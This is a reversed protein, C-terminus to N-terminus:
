ARQVTPLEELRVGPVEPQSGRERSEPGPLVRRVDPRVAPQQRGRLAPRVQRAALRAVPRRHGRLVLRVRPAAPQEAPRRHALFARRVVAPHLVPNRLQLGVRVPLRHGPIGVLRGLHDPRLVRRDDRRASRRQATAVAV